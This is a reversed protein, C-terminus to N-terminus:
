KVNKPAIIKHKNSRKNTHKIIFLYYVPQSKISSHNALSIAAKLCHYLAIITQRLLNQKKLKNLKKIQYFNFM